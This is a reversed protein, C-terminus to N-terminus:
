RRPDVVRGLFLHAGTVHDHILFLFPHDAIFQPPLSVVGVGVGTAAGAQTGAEDVEVFAQHVAAAVFLDRGGAIGSLDAQGPAFVSPMGLEALVRPLEFTSRFRFRPLAVRVRTESLGAIWADLSDATISRELAALGDSESPLLILMSLDGGRYRLELMQLAPTSALRFRGEQSMTPVSAVEGAGLRFPADRTQARDFPAEWLGEFAIANALALRTDSTV